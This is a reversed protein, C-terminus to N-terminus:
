QSLASSGPAVGTVPAATTATGVDNGLKAGFPKKPAGVGGGRAVGSDIGRSVDLNMNKTSEQGVATAREVQGRDPEECATLAVALALWCMVVNRMTKM